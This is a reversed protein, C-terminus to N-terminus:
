KFSSLNIKLKGAPQPAQNTPQSPAAVAAQGVHAPSIRATMCEKLLEVHSTGLQKIISRFVAAHRSANTQLLPGLSPAYKNYLQKNNSIALTLLVLQPLITSTENGTVSSSSAVKLVKDLSTVSSLDDMTLYAQLVLGLATVSTAALTETDEKRNGRAENEKVWDSLKAILLGDTTISALQGAELWSCVWAWSSLENMESSTLRSVVIAAADSVEQSLQKSTSLAVSAPFYLVADKPLNAIASISFGSAAAAALTPACLVIGDVIATVLEKTAIMKTVFGGEASDDWHISKILSVIMQQLEEGGSSKSDKNEKLCEVLLCLVTEINASARVSFVAQCLIVRLDKPISKVISRPFSGLLSVYDPKQRALTQILIIALLRGQGDSISIIPALTVYFKVLQTATVRIQNTSLCDTPTPRYFVTTAMEAGSVDFNPKNESAVDSATNVLLCELTSNVIADHSLTAGFDTVIKSKDAGDGLANICAVFLAGVSARLQNSLAVKNAKLVTVGCRLLRKIVESSVRGNSTTVFSTIRSLLRELGDLNPTATECVSGLPVLIDRIKQSIMPSLVMANLSDIALLTLLSHADSFQLTAALLDWLENSPKQLFLALATGTVIIKTLLSSISPAHESRRSLASRLDALSKPMAIRACNTTAPIVVSLLNDIMDPTTSVSWGNVIFLGLFLQASPQSISFNKKQFPKAVNVILNGDGCTGELESFDIFLAPSIISDILTGSLHKPLFCAERRQLMVHVFLQTEPSATQQHQPNHLLASVDCLQLTILADYRLSWILAIVSQWKDMCASSSLPASSNELVVILCRLAHHTVTALIPSNAFTRLSKLLAEIVSEPDIPRIASITAMNSFYGIAELESSANFYSQNTNPPFLQIAVEPNCAFLKRLCLEGLAKIPVSHHPAMAHRVAKAWQAAVVETLKGVVCNLKDYAFILLNFASIEDPSPISNLFAESLDVNTAEIQAAIVPISSIKAFIKSIKRLPGAFAIQALSTPIIASYPQIM